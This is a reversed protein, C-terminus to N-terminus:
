GGSGASPQRRKAHPRRRQLAAMQVPVALNYRDDRHFRVTVISTQNRTDIHVESRLIAGDSQAIRVATHADGGNERILRGGTEAFKLM